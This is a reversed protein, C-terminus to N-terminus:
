RGDKKALPVWLEMQYKPGSMDGEAHVEFGPAGAHQCGQEPLFVELACRWGGHVCGPIAGKLSLIAYEAKKALRAKTVELRLKRARKTDSVDYCAM